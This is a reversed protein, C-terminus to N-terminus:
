LASEINELANEIGESGSSKKVKQTLINELVSMDVANKAGEPLNISVPKDFDYFRMSIEMSIMGPATIGGSAINKMNIDMRLQSKLPLSSKKSYWGKMSMNEIADRLNEITELADEGGLSGSSPLSAGPTISGQKVVNEIYNWYAETPEISLVRCKEGNVKEDGLQEVEARKLLEKQMGFRSQTKWSQAEFKVWDPFNEPQTKASEPIMAGMNMYLANEILYMESEVNEGMAQIVMTAKMKRNDRDVASQMHTTVETSMGQMEMNTTMTMNMKFTDVNEMAGLATDKIKSASVGGTGLGIYAVAGTVTVAIILIAVLPKGTPSIDKVEQM